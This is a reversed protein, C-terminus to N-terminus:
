SDNKPKEMRNKDIFKFDELIFVFKGVQSKEEMM